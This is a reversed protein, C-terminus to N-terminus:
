GRPADEAGLMEVGTARRTSIPARHRGIEAEVRDRLAIPVQLRIGRFADLRTPRAFPSAFYGDSGRTLRRVRDWPLHLRQFWGCQAHLGDSGVRYRIPFLYEALASTLAVVPLFLGTPEPFLRLWLWLATAYGAIVLAMGRPSERMRHVTWEVGSVTDGPHPIPRPAANDALDCM